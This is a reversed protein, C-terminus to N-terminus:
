SVNAFLKKLIPTSKNKIIEPASSKPLFQSILPKKLFRNERRTFGKRKQDKINEM